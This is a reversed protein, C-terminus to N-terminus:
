FDGYPILPQPPMDLDGQWGGFSYRVYVLGHSPTYDKAQQIDVATGIFWHSDLRRELVAKLTYGFGSSSDGALEANNYNNGAPLLGPLPYPRQGDTVARSWSYSGSLEWSWDATRQRYSVPLGFSLYQQPSYYGGQGLTYGSLDKQYQWWMSNAGLSVRRHDENILKYYYGGMLRYRQNDEVNKGTLVGLDANGWVGHAEGQDYSGSLALQTVRVGGWTQQTNPDQSGAFSLLSSTIPRRSVGLEWGIPVGAGLWDANSRANYSLSGVWDVVAFGLPTTGLDGRWRENQWGAGLSIGEATQRQDRSCTVDACTGFDADYTSSGFSGADMQVVDMRVFARGQKDELGLNDAWAPLELPTDLQLMSVYATLDSYGATGSSRQYDQNFTLTTDQQRYLEAADSRISRKLWDDGQELRTLRTFDDNNSLPPEGEQDGEQEGIGGAQMANKYYALATQPQTSQEALRARDRWWLAADPSKPQLEINIQQENYLQQATNLEGVAAWANGLRRQRNPTVEAAAVKPLDRLRARAESTQKLTILAEIEGLRAADNSPDTSLLQRYQALAVNPQNDELAWDALTLELRPTSPQARLLALAGANNGQERLARAKTLLLDQELRAALDTIDQSWKHQPLSNLQALAQAERDSASLYLSHAYVQQPDEPLRAALERFVQDAREPQNAARLDNALRYTLWVDDPALARAQLLLDSAALWQSTQELPSAKAQLLESELRPLNDALAQRQPKSLQALFQEAGALSQQRKIEFLRQLATGNSPDRALAQKFYGEAQALNQQALAVQGLGLWGFSDQGDLRTAGQYAREAEPWAQRALAADGQQILLWYRQSALLNQWKNRNDNDIDVLKLAREFLPIALQRQDTQSYAEALGGLLAVDEPYTRLAQRLPEIAAAGKGAAVLSLGRQKARFGPNALLAQQQTLLAAVQPQTAADSLPLLQQLQRVSDDGIPLSNIQALWRASAQQQTNPELILQQLLALADAPRQEAFDMEVLLTRLNANGPYQRDLQQLANRAQTRQSPFRAVLRWYEIAIDLTPFDQGFLSQYAQQAEPLRGAAALLRAQQLQQRGTASTLLLANKAQRYLPSAPALQALKDLEAQAQQQNEQRLALRIKAALLQPNDPAILEWRHVAEIVLQDRYSAEGLRIQELLLQEPGQSLGSTQAVASLPAVSVMISWSLVSWSLARLTRRSASAPARGTSSSIIKSM